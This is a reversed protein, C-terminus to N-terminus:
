DALRILGVFVGQIELREPSYHQAPYDANAAELIITGGDDAYRIRKLTAQQQDILAVVIAGDDAQNCSKCVVIDGNLIGEDLMSDGKVKLAFHGPGYFLKDVEISEQEAIADIPLGAAITGVLPLSSHAEVLTINRHRKSLLRIYGGQELAKVYRYAVGRSTIGLAKAIEAATPSQQYQKFHTQIFSLTKQQMVTLM